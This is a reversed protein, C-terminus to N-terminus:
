RLDAIIFSDPKWFSEYEAPNAAIDAAREMNIGVWPTMGFGAEFARDVASVQSTNVGIVVVSVSLEHARSNVAELLKSFTASDRAMGVKVYLKDSGAETGAGHHYVAFAEVEGDDARLVVCDGLSHNVAARIEVTADLGSYVSHSLSRCAKVASPLEKSALEFQSSLPPTNSIEQQLIYNLFRPRMAHKSYTHLHMSSNPFTFNCYHKAPLAAMMRMSTDVLMQAVGWGQYAPDVSLPGRFAMSGWDSVFQSGIIEGRENEAVFAAKAYKFRSKVYDVDGFPHETSLLGGFAKTMCADAQDCDQARMPRIKIMWWREAHAHNKLRQVIDKPVRDLWEDLQILQDDNLDIARFVADVDDDAVNLSKLAAAMEEKSLVNDKASDFDRFALALFALERRRRADGRARSEILMRAYTSWGTRGDWNESRLADRALENIEKDKPEDHLARCQSRLPPRSALVAASALRTRPPQRWLSALRGLMTLAQRKYVDSAASSSSLTSRPPRRIM